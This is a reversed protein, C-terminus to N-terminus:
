RQTTPNTPRRCGPRFEAAYGPILWFEQPFATRDCNCDEHDSARRIVAHGDASTYAGATACTVLGAAARKEDAEEAAFGISARRQVEIAREIEADSIPPLDYPSTGKNAM